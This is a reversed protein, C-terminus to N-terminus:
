RWHHSPLYSSAGAVGAALLRGIAMQLQNLLTLRGRISVPSMEAIYLPCYAMTLPLTLGVIVRGAMLIEKNPAASAMVPGVVCLTATMLLTLRRGMRDAVAGATIASVAASIVAGGVILTQWTIDIHFDSQAYLMMGSIITVNYGFCMAGLSAGFTMLYVFTASYQEAM